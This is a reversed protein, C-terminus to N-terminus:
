FPRLRADRDESHNQFDGADAPQCGIMSSISPAPEAGPRHCRSKRGRRYTAVAKKVVTLLETQDFPKTIFDFAGQKLASVAAEVTGYATIIVVPLEPHFKQCHKLIEMGGPGPMYLDTVITEIDGNEPTELAEIAESSDNFVIPEFGAKELMAQIVLTINKEDDVVLVRGPM